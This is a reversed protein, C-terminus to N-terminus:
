QRHGLGRCCRGKLQGSLRTGDIRASEIEGIIRRGHPGQGVELFQRIRYTVVALPVLEIPITRSHSEVKPEGAAM